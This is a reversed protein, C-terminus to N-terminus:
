EIAEVDWYTTNKKMDECVTWIDEDISKIDEGNMKVDRYITTGDDNMWIEEDITWVYDDNVKYGSLIICFNLQMGKIEEQNWFM